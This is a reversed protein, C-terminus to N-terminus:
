PYSGPAAAATPGTRTRLWGALIIDVNYLVTAACVAFLPWVSDVCHRSGGASTAPALLAATVWRARIQGRFERM